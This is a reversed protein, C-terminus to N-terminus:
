FCPSLFPKFVFFKRYYLLFLFFLANYWYSFFKEPLSRNFHVWKDKNINYSCEKFANFKYNNMIFARYPFTEDTNIKSVKRRQKYFEEEKLDIENRGGHNPYPIPRPPPNQLDKDLRLISGRNNECIAYILPKKLYSDPIKNLEEKAKEYKCMRYFYYAKYFVNIPKTKSPNYSEDEVLQKLGIYDFNYIKQFFKEIEEKKPKFFKSFEYLNVGTTPYFIYTPLEINDDYKTYLTERYNFQYELMLFNNKTLISLIIKLKKVICTKKTTQNNKKFNEIKLKRNENTMEDSIDYKECLKKDKKLYELFSKEPLLYILNDRIADILIKFKVNNSTLVNSETNIDINYYRNRNKIDYDENLLDLIDKNTYSNLKKLIKLKQYYYDVVEKIEYLEDYTLFFLSKYTDRGIENELSKINEEIDQRMNDNEKLFDKIENEMKTYSIRIINQNEYYNDIIKEIEKNEETSPTDINLLYAKKTKERLIDKISNFIMKVNIDNVSYGIFLVTHSAVIAKIYTEILTFNKSYSLYDDEKLVINNKSFDGHMKIIVNKSHINSIDENEKVIDYYKPAEKELLNDYNTTIIYKPKLSNFIFKHIENLKFNDINKFIDNLKKLYEDEGKENFYYQPIKLYEDQSYDDKEKKYGLDKAFRDIIDYYKPAGSNVSIGAGVFLCLKDDQIARQIKKISDLYIKDMSM